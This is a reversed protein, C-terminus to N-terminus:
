QLALNVLRMFAEPVDQFGIQRGRMEWSQWLLTGSFVVFALGRVPFVKEAWAHLLGTIAFAALVLGGVLTLDEAM